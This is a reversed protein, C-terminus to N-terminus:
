RKKPEIILQFSKASKDTAIGVVPTESNGPLYITTPMSDPIIPAKGEDFWKFTGLAATDDKAKLTVTLKLCGTPTLERFVNNVAITNELKKNTFTVNKKLAPDSQKGSSAATPPLENTSVPPVASAIDGGTTLSPMVTIPTPDSSASLKLVPKAFCGRMIPREKKENTICVFSNTGDERIVVGVGSEPGATITKEGTDLDTDEQPTSFRVTVGKRFGFQANRNVKAIRVEDEDEIGSVRPPMATNSAAAIADNAFAKCMDLQMQKRRISFDVSGGDNIEITKPGWEVRATGITETTSVNVIRVTGSIHMTFSRNDNAANRVGELQVGKERSEGFEFLDLVPFFAYDAGKQKLVEITPGSGDDLVAKLKKEDELDKLSARELLTFFSTEGLVVDIQSEVLDYAQLFDKKLQPREETELVLSKKVKL